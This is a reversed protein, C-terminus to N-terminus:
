LTSFTMTRGASCGNDIPAPEKRASEETKMVSRKTADVAEEQQSEQIGVADLIDQRATVPRKEQNEDLNQSLGNLGNPTEVPVNEGPRPQCQNHAMPDTEDLVEQDLFLESVGGCFLQHLLGILSDHQQVHGDDGASEAHDRQARREGQQYQDHDSFDSEVDMQVAAHVPGLFWDWFGHPKSM